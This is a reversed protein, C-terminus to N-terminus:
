RKVARALSTLAHSLEAAQTIREDPTLQQFDARLRAIPHNGRPGPAAGLELREGMVELLRAVTQVSPSVAGREIRSIQTQSTRARRALSRQDLGHRRRVERVIGGADM